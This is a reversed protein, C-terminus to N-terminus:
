LLGGPSDVRRAQAQGGRPETEGADPPGPLGTQASKRVPEFATFQAQAM